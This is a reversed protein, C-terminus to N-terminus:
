VVALPHVSAVIARAAQAGRSHGPWLAARAGRGRIRALDAPTFTASDPDNRAAVLPGFRCSTVGIGNTGACACSLPDTRAAELGTLRRSTVGM